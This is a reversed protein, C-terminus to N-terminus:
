ECDYDISYNMTVDKKLELTEKLELEKLKIMSNSGDDVDIKNDLCTEDLLDEQVM